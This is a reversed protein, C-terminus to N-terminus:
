EFKFFRISLIAFVLIVAIVAISSHGAFLEMGLWASEMIQIALYPPLNRSIPQIIDPMSELPLMLGGAILLFFFMVFVFNQSNKAGKLVNAIFMAILYFMIFSLLLLPIFLAWNRNGIDQGFFLVQVTVLGIALALLAAIRSMIGTIIYHIPKAPTMRLRRLFKIQRAYAHSSAADTFSLVIAAMTLLIPLTDILHTGEEMSGNFIFLLLFPFGIGFFLNTPERMIVLFHYKLLGRIM